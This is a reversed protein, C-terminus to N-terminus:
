KSIVHIKSKVQLYVNKGWQYVSRLEWSFWMQIPWWKQDNEWMQLMLNHHLELINHYTMGNWQFLKRYSWLPRCILICIYKGVDHWLSDATERIEPQEDSLGTLLLPILKNWFSYRDCMDLMWHGVVKVVAMRVAPTQDFLRQALHSVITDVPKNSGYQIVDGTFNLLLNHWMEPLLNQNISFFLM